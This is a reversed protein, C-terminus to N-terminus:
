ASTANKRNIRSMIQSVAVRTAGVMRAIEANTLWRESDLGITRCHRLMAHIRGALDGRMLEVQRDAAVLRQALKRAIALAFQSNQQMCALFDDSGLRILQCPTLAVISASRGVDLLSTVEGVMDGPGLLALMFEKRGGARREVGSQAPPIHAHPGGRMVKIYGSIVFYISKTQDNQHLITEGADYAQWDAMAALKILTADPLEALLPTTRLTTSTPRPLSHSRAAVPAGASDMAEGLMVLLEDRSWPKPVFRHIQAEDVMKSVTGTDSVGSLMLRACRPQIAAFAKLFAIGDMDPMRLDSMVADFPQEKARALAALPDTLTEVEYGFRGSQAGALQIQVLRLVDNDDDVVLVKKRTKTAV